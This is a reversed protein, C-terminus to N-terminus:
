KGLLAKKLSKQAPKSSLWIGFLAQKFELGTITLLNNGNKLITTGQQPEYAMVYQDGEEIQDFVSIFQDIENKLSQTNSDTSNEFGERTAKEMKEPTILSSTIQLVMAMGSDSSLIEEADASPSTLYLGADYLSIFAKKRTGMGNLSLQESEIKLKNPFENAKVPLTLFVMSFFILCSITILNQPKTSSMTRAKLQNSTIIKIKRLPQEGTPQHFPTQSSGSEDINNPERM